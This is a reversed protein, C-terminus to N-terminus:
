ASIDVYVPARDVPRLQALGVRTQELARALGERVVDQRRLLDRARAVLADPIPGGTQPPVWAGSAAPVSTDGDLPGTLMREAVRVDHELAELADRWSRVVDALDDDGPLRGIM